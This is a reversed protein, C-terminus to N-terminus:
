AAAALLSLLHYLQAGMLTGPAAQITILTNELLGPAQRLDAPTIYADPDKALTTLSATVVAELERLHDEQSQLDAIDAELQQYRCRLCPPFAAICTCHAGYLM